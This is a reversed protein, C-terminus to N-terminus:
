LPIVLHQQKLEIALILCDRQRRLNDLEAKIATFERWACVPCRSLKALEIDQAKCDPMPESGHKVQHITCLFITM